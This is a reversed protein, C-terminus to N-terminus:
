YIFLLLFLVLSFTNMYLFSSFNNIPIFDIEEDSSQLDNLIGYDLEGDDEEEEIKVFNDLKKNIIFEDMWKFREDIFTNLAEVEKDYNEKIDPNNYVDKDIINWKQFNLERSQSILNKKEEIFNKLREKIKTSNDSISKWKKEILEKVEDNEIIDKVLYDMSGASIGFKYCYDDKQNVPFVKKNNDFASDFVGWIPGFFFKKEGRDKYLNVTWFNESNGALEGILFFKVFSEIDILEMNLNYIETEMENFKQKIYLLQRVLLEEDGPSKIIVPLGKNSNFMNSSFFGMGDIQLLYGGSIEPEESFERTLKTINLKLESIDANECLNYLGQYESNIVLDVPKCEITYKMEFIRSMELTLLNRLLTKDSHNPVLEYKTGESAFDLIKKKDSIIELEYPKKELSKYVNNTLTIICNEKDILNLSLDRSKISITCFDNSYQDTKNKINNDSNTTNLTVTTELTESNDSQNISITILPLNTPLSNLFKNNEQIRRKKINNNKNSKKNIFLEGYLKIEPISCIKEKPGIYRIYKFPEKNKIIIKIPINEKEKQTIMFLPFSDTFNEQNAGEFKGLLYNEFFDKENKPIWIIKSIVYQNILDLNIFCESSNSIKIPISKILKSSLSLKIQFSLLIIFSIFSPIIKSYYYLKKM